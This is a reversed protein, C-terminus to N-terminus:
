VRRFVYYQNLNSTAGDALFDDICKAPVHTGLLRQEEESIAHCYRLASDDDGWTMIHDGPELAKIDIQLSNGALATSWPVLKKRFRVFQDFRWVTYTLLGGNDLLRASETLLHERTSIGPLHHLLGFLVVLDFVEKGLRSNINECVVDMLIFETCKLSATQQRAFDLAMQSVDVGTYHFPQKLHESLFSAFRGNGCGIDLVRLPSNRLLCSRHRDLLENWGRWPRKRTENFEEARVQYFRKNLTNLAHLTQKDM